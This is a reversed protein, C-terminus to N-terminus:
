KSLPKGTVLRLILNVVIVIAGQTEVNLLDSGIMANTVIGAAMLLNIWITKSTYWKKPQMPEKGGSIYKIGWQYGNIAWMHFEYSGFGIWRPEDDLVLGAYTEHIQIRFQFQKTVQDKTLNGVYKGDNVNPM